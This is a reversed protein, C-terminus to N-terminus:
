SAPCVLSRELSTIHDINPDTPSPPPAIVLAPEPTSNRVDMNISPSALSLSAELPSNPIVCQLRSTNKFMHLSSFPSWWYVSMISPSVNFSLVSTSEQQVHPRDSTTAMSLLLITLFRFLPLWTKRAELKFLYFLRLRAPQWRITYFFLSDSSLCMVRISTLSHLLNSLPWIRACSKGPATNPRIFVLNALKSSHSIRKKGEQGRNYPNPSPPRLSPSQKGM